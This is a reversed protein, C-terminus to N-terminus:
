TSSATAGHARPDTPSAKKPETIAKGRFDSTAGQTTVAAIAGGDALAMLNSDMISKPQEGIAQTVPTGTGDLYVWHPIGDVRYALIEPLWKENDINLMVFNVRDGHQQKLEAVAPAMHQCSSCWDAYFEMLTPKGNALAVELPMAAKATAGLSTGSTQNKLSFAFFASLVIAVIAILLNRLRNPSPVTTDAMSNMGFYHPRLVEM